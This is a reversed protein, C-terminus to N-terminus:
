CIIADIVRSINKFIEEGKEDINAFKYTYISSIMKYIYAIGALSNLDITNISKVIVCIFKRIDDDTYQPLAIKIIGPLESIDPIKVGAINNNVRTNFYQTENKFRSSWKTIKKYSNHSAIDLQKNFTLADEFAEKVAIINKAQKPNKAAINDIKNFTDNIAETILYNYESGMENMLDSMESNYDDITKSFKADNIFENLLTKAGANRLQSINKYTISSDVSQAILGDVMSKFLNPLRNYLGSTKGAKIESILKIIEEAENDTVEGYASLIEKVNEPTEEIKDLGEDSAINQPIVNVGPITDRTDIETNNEKTYNSNDTMMEADSLKDQSNKDIDSLGNYLEHVQTDNLKLDNDIDLRETEVKALTNIMTDKM